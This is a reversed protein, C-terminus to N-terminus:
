DISVFAIENMNGSWILIGPELPESIIAMLELPFLLHM